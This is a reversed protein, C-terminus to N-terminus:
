QGKKLGYIEAIQKSLDEEGGFGELLRLERNDSPIYPVDYISSNAFNKMFTHSGKEGDRNKIIHISIDQRLHDNPKSEIQMCVNANHAIMSSRGFRHVGISDGPNKTAAARNLQVATLVPVNYVRAFEHLKASIQGLKLWDDGEADPDTLLGLYDVIVVDPKFSMCVEQYIQEILGVTVGRPTDVIRFQHPYRKVFEGAKAAAETEIKSLTSDRLGYIPVDAVKAMTRRFCPLFPMECSFFLVNYGKEFSTSSVTNGQMWMQVAMNNLMISNHTPIMGRGALFLHNSSNVQICKMKIPPVKEAKEIFRFSNLRQLSRNQREVKRPIKFVIRKPSCTVSWTPGMDKGYLVSRGETLYCREGLSTLLHIVGDILNKNTNDFCCSGNKSVTGDTDMLGQLLALRQEISGWLYDNPIHKNGFVGMKKFLTRWGKFRFLSAKSKNSKCASLLIHGSDVINNIVEIDASTVSGDRATGDGLWVGFSYPDLPLDKSPIDLANTLPISFNNRKAKGWKLQDVIEKTSRISGSSPLKCGVGQLLQNEVYPRSRVKGKVISLQSKREREAARFKPSCRNFSVRDSQSHCFWLHKENSTIESGDNFIFKWGEEEIIPSEAVVICAKGDDGFVYDGPHIDKMKKWGNPTPIDTDLDLAKGVGTEAGVMWLEAGRAGNIVYDLYSYRTLIGRDIEPNNIKALYNANFTDVYSSLDQQDFVKLKPTKVEKILRIREELVSLEVRSDAAIERLDQTQYDVYRQKMKDIDYKLEHRNFQVQQFRNWVDDVLTSDLQLSTVRKTPLEKYRKFYDIFFEGVPQLATSFMDARVNQIIDMASGIDSTLGNLVRIDQEPFIDVSLEDDLMMVEKM